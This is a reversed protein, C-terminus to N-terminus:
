ESNIPSVSPIARKFRCKLPKREFTQSNTHLISCCPLFTDNM